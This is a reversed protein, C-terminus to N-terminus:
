IEELIPASDHRSQGVETGKVPHLPLGNKRQTRIEPDSATFPSPHTIEQKERDREREGLKEERKTYAPHRHRHTRIYTRTTHSLSCTIKVSKSEVWADLKSGDDSSVGM